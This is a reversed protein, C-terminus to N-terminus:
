EESANKKKANKVQYKTKFLISIACLYVLLVNKTFSHENLKIHILRNHFHGPSVHSLQACMCYLATCM